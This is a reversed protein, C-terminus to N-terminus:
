KMNGYGLRRNRKFFHFREIKIEQGQHVKAYKQAM